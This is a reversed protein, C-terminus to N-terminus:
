IWAGFTEILTSGSLLHGFCIFRWLRAKWSGQYSLCDLIQRGHLLDLEIGSDLLDGPTLFPLGSWSEQRSFKM